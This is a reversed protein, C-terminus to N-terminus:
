WTIGDMLDAILFIIQCSYRIGIYGTYQVWNYQVLCDNGGDYLIGIVGNM